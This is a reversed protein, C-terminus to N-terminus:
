LTKEKVVGDYLMFGHDDNAFWSENGPEESRRDYSSFQRTVYPPDPFEALLSLDTMQRILSELTVKAAAFTSGNVCILVTVVIFLKRMMPTELMSTLRKLVMAQPKASVGFRHTAKRFHDPIVPGVAM